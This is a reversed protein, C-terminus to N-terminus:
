RKAVAILYPPHNSQNMFRYELVQFFQQPLNEAWERVACAEAAGGPHGTYLAITIVGDKRLLQAAQELAPLTSAATTITGSDEGPLYGLNFMVAGVTGAASVPLLESLRAHSALMLSVHASDMREKALRMKTKELAREQIDFAYVAGNPGVLGALFATDVGNGATADVVTEGAAVREAILKHAFSLISLFGM